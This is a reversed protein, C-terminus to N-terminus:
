QQVARASAGRRKRTTVLQPGGALCADAELRGDLAPKLPQHDELAEAHVIEPGSIALPPWSNRPHGSGAFALARPTPGIWGRKTLPALKPVSWPPMNEPLATTDFQAQDQASGISLLSIRVRVSVPQSRNVCLAAPLCLGNGFGKPRMWWLSRCTRICRPTESVRRGDCDRPCQEAAAQAGRAIRRSGVDAFAALLLPKM